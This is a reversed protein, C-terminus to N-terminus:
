ATFQEDLGREELGRGADFLTILAVERTERVSVSVAHRVEFNDAVASVPRKDAEIVEFSVHATHPL